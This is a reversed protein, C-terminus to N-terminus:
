PLAAVQPQDSASPARRSAVPGGCSRAGQRLAHLRAGADDSANSAGSADSRRLLEAGVATDSAEGTVGDFATASGMCYAAVGSRRDRSYGVVFIDGLLVGTGVYEPDPTSWDVLYIDGAKKITVSGYYRTGTPNRGLTIRYTGDLGAPGDLNEAGLGSSGSAYRWIGELHGGKVRYLVVGPYRENNEAVVGLVEDLQLGFGHSELVPSRQWEVDFGPGNPTLKLAGHYAEGAATEGNLEYSGALNPAGSQTTSCGAVGLFAFVLAVLFRRLSM